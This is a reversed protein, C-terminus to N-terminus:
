GASYERFINPPGDRLFPQVKNNKRTKMYITYTFIGNVHIKHDIFLGSENGDGFSLITEHFRFVSQTESTIFSVTFPENESM